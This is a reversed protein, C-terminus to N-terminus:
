SSTSCGVYKCIRSVAFGTVLSTPVGMIILDIAGFGGVFSGESSVCQYYNEWIIWPLLGMCAGIASYVKGRLQWVIAPLSLALVFLFSRAFSYDCAFSTFSLHVSVVLGIVFWGAILLLRRSFWPYPM